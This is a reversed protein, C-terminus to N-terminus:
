ETLFKIEKSLGEQLEFETMRSARHVQKVVISRIAKLDLNEIIQQVHRGDPAEIQSRLEMVGNAQEKFEVKAFETLVDDAVQHQEFTVFCQPVSSLEFCTGYLVEAAETFAMTSPLYRGSKLTPFVTYSPVDEPEDPGYLEFIDGLHQLDPISRLMRTMKQFRPMIINAEFFLFHSVKRAWEDRAQADSPEVCHFANAPFCKEHLKLTFYRIMKHADAPLHRLISFYILHLRLFYDENVPTDLSNVVEASLMGSEHEIMLLLYATIGLLQRHESRQSLLSIQSMVFNSWNRCSKLRDLTNANAPHLCDEIPFQIELAKTPLLRTAMVQNFRRNVLRLNSWNSSEYPINAAIELLLEESLDM